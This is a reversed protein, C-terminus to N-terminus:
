RELWIWGTNAVAPPPPPIKTSISLPRGDYIVSFEVTRSSPDFRFSRNSGNLITLNPAGDPRVELLSLLM